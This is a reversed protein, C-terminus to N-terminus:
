KRQFGLTIMGNNVWQIVMINGTYEMECSPHADWKTLSKYDMHSVLVNYSTYPRLLSNNTIIPNRATELGSADVLGVIYDMYSWYLGICFLGYLLIIWIYTYIYIDLLVWHLDTINGM